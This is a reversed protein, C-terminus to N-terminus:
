FHTQGRQSITQAGSDHQHCVVAPGTNQWQPTQPVGSNHRHHLDAIQHNDGEYACDDHGEDVERTRGPTGDM